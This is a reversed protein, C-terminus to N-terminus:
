KSSQLESIKAELEAILRSDELHLKKWWAIQTIGKVEWPRYENSGVTGELEAIRAEYARSIQRIADLFSGYVMTEVTNPDIKGLKHKEWLQDASPISNKM